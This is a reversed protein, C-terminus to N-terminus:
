EPCVDGVVYVVRKNLHQVPRSNHKGNNIKSMLAYFCSTKLALPERYVFWDVTELCPPTTASGQYHYWLKGTTRGLLELRNVQPVGNEDTHIDLDIASPSDSPYLL